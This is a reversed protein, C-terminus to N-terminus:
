GMRRRWIRWRSWRGLAGYQVVVDHFLGAVDPPTGGAIALLTKYQIDSTSVYRVYIHKEKGVTNNFDRVIQAMDDSEQGTWKEWYEVITDGRRDAPIESGARPGFILIYVGAAALM